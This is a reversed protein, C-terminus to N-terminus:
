RSGRGMARVIGHCISLGLGTGVGVEKTTFFPDLHPRHDGAPGGMGHGARHGRGSVTCRPRHERPSRKRARMRARHRTRRQRVPELPGARAPGREGPGSPGGPPRARRASSVRAQRQRNEAGLRHRCPNGRSETTEDSDSAFMAMDRAIAGVRLAGRRVEDLSALISAAAPSDPEALLAPLTEGIVELHALLFMLPNNIEHAVGAVLTGLAALRDTVVRQAQAQM